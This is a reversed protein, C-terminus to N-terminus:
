LVHDGLQSSAAWERYAIEDYRASVLLSATATIMEAHLAADAALIEDACKHKQLRKLAKTSLDCENPLNLPLNALGMPDNVPTFTPEFKLALSVLDDHETNADIRYGIVSKVEVRSPPQQAVALGIMWKCLGVLFIALHGNPTEAAIKLAAEDAIALQDTSAERFAACNALNEVYKNLFLLLVDAHIDQKGTRTTLFLLWPNRNKAQLSFLRQVANYHTNDLVGPAHSGFGDCLDLNIVDYPGLAKAKSWAKSNENAVLCFDDWIVESLPDITSLKRVEDISINLETQMESKPNAGSNFGLFRLRLQKPDCIHSHFYRLDLLDVGPLGFYKLLNGDPQFTELLAEIQTRWQHHRVFQKRPKHWALFEKKQPKSAEYTAAGFISDAHGENNELQQNPM